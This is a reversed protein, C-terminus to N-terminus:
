TIKKLIQTVSIVKTYYWHTVHIHGCCAGSICTLIINAVLTKKKIENKNFKGSKYCICICAM